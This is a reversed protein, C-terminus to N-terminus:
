SLSTCLLSGVRSSILYLENTSTFFTISFSTIKTIIKKFLSICGVTIVRIAYEVNVLINVALALINIHLILETPQVDSLM